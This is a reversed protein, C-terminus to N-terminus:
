CDPPGDAGYDEAHQAVRGRHARARRDSPGVPAREIREDPRLAREGDLQAARRTRDDAPARLEVRDGLLHAVGLAAQRRDGELALRPDALGAEQEGRGLQAAAAPNVHTAIVASSSIRPGNRTARLRNAEPAIWSVAAPVGASAATLRTASAMEPRSSGPKPLRDGSAFSRRAKSRAPTATEVSAPIRGSASRM